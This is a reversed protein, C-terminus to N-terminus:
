AKRRKRKSGLNTTLAEGTLKKFEKRDILSISLDGRWFFFITIAVGFVVGFVYSFICHYISFTM